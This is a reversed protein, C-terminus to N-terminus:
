QAVVEREEHSEEPENQSSLSVEELVYKASMFSVQKVWNPM